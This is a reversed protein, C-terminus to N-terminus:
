WRRGCAAGTLIRGNQITSVQVKFLDGILANAEDPTMVLNKLLPVKQAVHAAGPFEYFTSAIGPVLVYVAVFALVFGFFLFMFFKIARGHEVLLKKESISDLDKHEEYRLTKAMLPLCGMVTLFVMVLSAYERFIWLSLIIATLAFAFGYLIMYASHREAERPNTLSELVM